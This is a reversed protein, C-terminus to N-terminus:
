SSAPLDRHLSKPLINLFDDPMPVTCTITSGSVPQQFVIQSAHLLTRPVWKRDNRSQKRGGYLSDGLIPHGIYKLHVRIQHTRGTRPYLEMLSLLMRKFGKKVEFAGLNKFTTQAPKGGAVVGFRKRNWTQRGVPANIEGKTPVVDGHAIARYTKKITRDKFQSQLNKFSQENKAIILAGSTEKDLRHVIGGRANFSDKQDDSEIDHRLAAWDQITETKVSEARNVVIGPPKNIVILDDDEYTCDIEIM